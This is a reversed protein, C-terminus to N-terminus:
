GRTRRKAAVLETLLAEWRAGVRGIGFAAASALANAALRRRRTEDEILGSIGRALADVDGDPILLGNHEHDIVQRPGRPCDFSVTPVGCALAEVITMAFGEIHSSMAHISAKAFAGEIDTTKGMFTVNNYIGLEGTLRRLKNRQAGDGYVRLQWDPHERVVQAFATILRDYGKIKALRGAAMVVRNEQRSRPYAIEPIGNPITHIDLPSGSLFREYTTKEEDSLTVFADLKPYWQRLHPLVGADHYELTTHEQGVVVVRGATFMAAAINLSPRTSILVDSRLRKLVRQLQHDTQANVQEFLVDEAPVVRSPEALRRRVARRPSTDRRDVLDRMTVRGDITFHPRDDDRFASILEVDHGRGALHNALNVTTRVIGGMGYVTGALFSVKM